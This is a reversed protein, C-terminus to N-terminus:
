WMGRNFVKSHQSHSVIYAMKAKGLAQPKGGLMTCADGVVDTMDDHKGNPNELLEAEYDKLWPADRRHYVMLNRYRTGLTGHRSEKDDHRTIEIIPLGMLLTYQMLSLQYAVTEIGIAYPRWENYVAQIEGPQEPATLKKRVIDVVFFRGQHFAVTGIAFYDAKTKRSAAPDVAQVWRCAKFSIVEDESDAKHVILSSSTMDVDFYRFWSQKFTNGEKDGPSGQYLCLFDITDMDARIEQLTAIPWMEPWYSKEVAHGEATEEAIVAPFTVMNYGMQELKPVMDDYHWRNSVWIIRGGPKLRSKIVTKFRREFRQRWTPSDIENPDFPDDLIIVDARRGIAGGMFGISVYQPDKAGQHSWGDKDVIPWKGTADRWKFYLGKTSWGREIDPQVDPFVEGHRSNSEWVQQITTLYANAKEDNAHLHLILWDPHNGVMWPPAIESIWTSKGSGPPCVVVSGKNWKPPDVAHIIGEHHPAPRLGRTVAGYVALSQRSFEIEYPSLANDQQLMYSLLRGM